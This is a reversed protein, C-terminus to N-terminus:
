FETASLYIICKASITKSILSMFFLLTVTISSDVYTCAFSVIIKRFEPEQDWTGLTQIFLFAVPSQSKMIDLEFDQPQDPLMDTCYGTIFSKEINMYLGHVALIPAITLCYPVHRNHIGNGPHRGWLCGCALGPCATIALPERPQLSRATENQVHHIVQLLATLPLIGLAVNLFSRFPTERAQDFSQSVFTACSNM